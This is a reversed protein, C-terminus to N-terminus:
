AIEDEFKDFYKQCWHCPYRDLGALDGRRLDEYLRLKYQQTLDMHKRIIEGFDEYLPAGVIDRRSKEGRNKTLNCCLSMNGDSDLTLNRMPVFDCELYLEDMRFLDGCLVAGQPRLEAIRTALADRECDTLLFGRDWLFKSYFAPWFYVGDTVQQSVGFEVLEDVQDVNYRTVTVCIRTGFGEDRAISCAEVVRDFAGKGRIRDHTERNGGELSIALFALEDRTMRLLPLIERLNVVNTVMHYRLREEHIFRLIDPFRSHITPEGGTLVLYPPGFYARLGRVAAALAEIPTETHSRLSKFCHTCNLNCGDTLMCVLTKPHNGVPM